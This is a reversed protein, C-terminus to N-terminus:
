LRPLAGLRRSHPTSPTLPQSDSHRPRQVSICPAGVLRPMRSCAAAAHPRASARECQGEVEPPTLTLFQSMLVPVPAQAAGQPLSLASRRTCRPPSRPAPTSGGPSRPPEAALGQPGYIVALAALPAAPRSPPGCHDNLLSPWGKGPEGLRRCARGVQGDRMVAVLIGKVVGSDPLPHGAAATPWCRILDLNSELEPHCPSVFASLYARPLPPRCGLGVPPAAPPPPPPAAAPRAATDTHACGRQALAHQCTSVSPILAGCVACPPLTTPIPPLPTPRICGEAWGGAGGPACTTDSRGACTTCAGETSTLHKKSDGCDCALPVQRESLQTCAASRRVCASRHTFPGAKSFAM